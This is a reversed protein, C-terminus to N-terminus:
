NKQTTKHSNEVLIKYINKEERRAVCGSIENDKDPPMVLIKVCNKGTELKTVIQIMPYFIIEKFDRFGKRLCVL